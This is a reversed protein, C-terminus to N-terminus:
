ARPGIDSVVDSASSSPIPTSWSASTTRRSTPRNPRANGHSATSMAKKDHATGVTGIGGQRLTLLMVEEDVDEDERADHREDELSV